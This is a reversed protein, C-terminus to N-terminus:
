LEYGGRSQKRHEQQRQPGREQQRRQREQDLTLRKKPSMKRGTLQFYEDSTLLRNLQCADLVEESAAKLLTYTNQLENLQTVYESRQDLLTQKEAKLRNPGPFKGEVHHKQRYESLGDL